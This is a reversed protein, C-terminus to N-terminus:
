SASSIMTAWAEFRMGNDEELRLTYLHNGGIIERKEVVFIAGDPLDWEAPADVWVRQKVSFDWQMNQIHLKALFKMFDHLDKSLELKSVVGWLGVQEEASTHNVIQDIMFSTDLQHYSAGFQITYTQEDLAMEEFFSKLKEKFFCKDM